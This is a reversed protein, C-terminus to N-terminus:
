GLLTIAKIQAFVSKGPELALVAAPKRTTHALLPVSNANNKLSQSLYLDHKNKLWYVVYRSHLTDPPMSSILQADAVEGTM